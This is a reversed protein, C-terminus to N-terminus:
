LLIKLSRTLKFNVVVERLLFLFGKKQLWKHKRAKFEKSMIALFRKSKLNTKIFVLSMLRTSWTRQKILASWKLSTLRIAWSKQRSYGTCNLTM